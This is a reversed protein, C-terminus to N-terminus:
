IFELLLRAYPLHGRRHLLVAPLRADQQLGVDGVDVFGAEGEDGVGIVDGGVGAADGAGEEFHADLAAVGGGGEAEEAEGIGYFAPDPGVEGGESLEGLRSLFYGGLGEAGELGGGVGGSYGAGEQVHPGFFDSLEGAPLLPPGEQVAEGLAEGVNAELGRGARHGGGDEPEADFDSGGEVPGGPPVAARHPQPDPHLVEVLVFDVVALVDEQVSSAM